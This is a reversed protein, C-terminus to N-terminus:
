MYQFLNHDCSTKSEWDLYLPIPPAQDLFDVLLPEPRYSRDCDPWAHFRVFDFSYTIGTHQPYRYGGM